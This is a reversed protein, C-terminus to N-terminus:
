ALVRNLFRRLRESEPADFAKDPAGTEVDNGDDMFVVKDAVKRAFGMEHTAVIMTMGDAAVSEMVNLVEGVLEPDLASTPEDFLMVKPEMALARAIAVRQRQGGSLHEPFADCKQALGVRDMQTRAIEAAQEVPMGKVKTLGLAVNEIASIHPWLNFMQFVMGIQSRMQAIERSSKRRSRGDTTTYGVPQGDVEINGSDPVELHNICRLLTSKGSGSPGILCVVEGQDVALSVGKLAQFDGFTKRVDRADIMPTKAETM